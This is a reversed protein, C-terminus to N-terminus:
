LEGRVNFCHSCVAAQRLLFPLLTLLFNFCPCKQQSRLQGPVAKPDSRSLQTQNREAKCPASPLSFRLWPPAWRERLSRGVPGAGWELATGGVSAAFGPGTSGPSPPPHLAAGVPGDIEESLSGCEGGPDRRGHTSGTDGGGKRPTHGPRWGEGQFRSRVPRLPIGGGAKRGWLTASAPAFRRAKASRKRPSCPLNLPQRSASAPNRRSRPTV